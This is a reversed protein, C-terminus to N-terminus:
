RLHQGKNEPHGRPERFAQKFRFFPEGVHTATLTSLFEQFAPSLRDYAQYASAWLQFSPFPQDSSTSSQFIM